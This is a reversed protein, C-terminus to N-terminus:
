QKSNKLEYKKKMMQILKKWNQNVWVFIIKVFNNILKECYRPLKRFKDINNVCRKQCQEDFRKLFKTINKRKFYLADHSDSASMLIMYRAVLQSIVFSSTSFVNQKLMASKKASISSAKKASNASVANMTAIQASVNESRSEVSFFIVSINVDSISKQSSSIM